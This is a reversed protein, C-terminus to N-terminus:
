LLNERKLVKVWRTAFSDCYKENFYWESEYGYKDGAYLHGIEHLLILAIEEKSFQDLRKIEVFSENNKNIKAFSIKLPFNITSTEPTVVAFVNEEYEEMHIKTNAILCEEDEFFALKPNQYKKPLRRKIIEYVKFVKEIKM